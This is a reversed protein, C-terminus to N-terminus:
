LRRIKETTLSSGMCNSRAANEYQSRTINRWTCMVKNAQHSQDFKCMWKERNGRVWTMWEADEQGPLFLNSLHAPFQHHLRFFMGSLEVLHVIQTNFLLLKIRPQVRELVLLYAARRGVATAHPLETATANVPIETSANWCVKINSISQKEGWVPGQSCGHSVPGM